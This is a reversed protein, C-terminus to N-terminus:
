YSYKKSVKGNISSAKSNQSVKKKNGQTNLQCLGVKRYIFHHGSQQPTWADICTYWDCEEWLLFLPFILLATVSDLWQMFSHASTYPLLFCHVCWFSSIYVCLFDMYCQLTFFIVPIGIVSSCDERSVFQM